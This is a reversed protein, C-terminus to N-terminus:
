NHNIQQAKLKKGWLEARPNLHIFLLRSAIFLVRPMIIKGDCSSVYFNIELACVVFRHSAEFKAENYSSIFGNLEISYKFRSFYNQRKKERRECFGWSQCSAHLPWFLLHFFFSFLLLKNFLFLPSCFHQTRNTELAFVCSFNAFPIKIHAERHDFTILQETVSSSNKILACSVYFFSLSGWTSQQQFTKLDYALSSFSNYLMFHFNNMSTVLLHSLCFCKQKYSSERIVRPRGSHFFIREHTKGVQHNSHSLCSVFAFVVFFFFLQIVQSPSNVNAQERTFDSSAEM